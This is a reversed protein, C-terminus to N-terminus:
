SKRRGSAGEDEARIFAKVRPYIDSRWRRGHFVGFHGVRPAEYHAKRAAPLSRCLAHAARTQGLGSIDDREGEITLLATREIAAPEVLTGKVRLRGLPLDHDQFVRKVTELYFEAPLDMVTTYEEYFERIAAASENDGAILSRFMSWHARLHRDLNMSMFGALQLFGPYVRRFAGRFRPPVTTIVRSDFWELPHAKAFLNVATPNARTDIPGGMLTASLPEAKEGAAALLSVAALVPVAPQCVAVVHIRPGLVRIFRIMLEVFDDLGFGGSSLPVNRANIWDALYVDHDPLLTDVADRLLTSFHGSLPAVVLLTPEPRAGEKRFHLLRCFPHTAAVEEYVPVQEGEIAVSNIGFEPREHNIGAHSLLEMAASAGRLLPHDAAFPWPQDFFGRATRAMLRVGVLADSQFQYAHYLM